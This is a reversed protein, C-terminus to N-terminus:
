LEFQQFVQHSFLRDHINSKTTFKALAARTPDSLFANRCHKSPLGSAVHLVPDDIDQVDRIIDTNDLVIEAGM